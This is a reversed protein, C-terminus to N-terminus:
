AIVLSIAAVAVATLALMIGYVTGIVAFKLGTMPWSQAYVRKQMLLLYVPMWLESAGVLFAIPASLWVLGGAASQLAELLVTVLLAMALFSHSHLAVVLHATYLWHKGLYFVKLLLAFLPMLVFLAAPLLSLFSDLLRGPEDAAMELNRQARAIWDNLQANAAAPLWDVELPNRQLDWPEGDLVIEMRERPPPRGDARAQAAARLWERRQEAAQAVLRQATQLERDARGPAASAETLRRLANRELQDVEALTDAREIALAASPMMPEVMLQLVLFAVVNLVFFLRFPLVFRMRKGALFEETIRGPRFYLPILSRWIRSDYEFVTDLVDHLISRLHRVMGKVPQGCAYCYPGHLPAGCNLCHSPQEM